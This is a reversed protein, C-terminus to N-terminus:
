EGGKKNTAKQEVAEAEVIVIDGDLLLRQWYPTWEVLAGEATLASFGQDPRRVTRGPAPKITQTM